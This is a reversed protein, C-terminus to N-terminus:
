REYLVMGARRVEERADPPLAELPKLDVGVASRGALFSLLRLFDGDPLGEVALDLDSWVSLAGSGVTSGFLYLRRFSFQAAAEEAM